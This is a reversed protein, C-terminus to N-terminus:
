SPTKRNVIDAPQIVLHMQDTLVRPVCERNTDRSAVTDTQVHLLRREAGDQTEPRGRRVPSCDISGSHSRSTRSHGAHRVTRSVAPPDGCLLSSQITPADNHLQTRARAFHAKQKQVIGKNANKSRQLRGGTWNMRLTSGLLPPGRYWSPIHLTTVFYFAPGCVPVRATQAQWGQPWENRGGCVVHMCYQANVSCGDDIITGRWSAVRRNM